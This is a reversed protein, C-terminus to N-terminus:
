PLHVSLALVFVGYVFGTLLLPTGVLHLLRREGAALMTALAFILLCAVTGLQEFWFAEAVFLGATILVAFPRRVSVWEVPVADLARVIAGIVVVIIAAISAIALLYPFGGAGIDTANLPKPLASAQGLYWLFSALLTSCGAFDLAPLPMRLFNPRFSWGIDHRELTNM